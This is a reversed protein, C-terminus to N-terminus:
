VRAFCKIPPSIRVLHALSVDSIRQTSILFIRSSPVFIFKSFFTHHVKPDGSEPFLFVEFNKKRPDMIGYLLDPNAIDPWAGEVMVPRGRVFLMQLHGDDIYNYSKLEMMADEMKALYEGSSKSTYNVVLGPAVDPLGCCLLQDGEKLGKFFKKKVYVRKPDRELSLLVDQLLSDM